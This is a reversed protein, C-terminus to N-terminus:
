GTYSDYIHQYIESCKIEYMEDSYSQPLKDLMDKIVIEVSARTQQRKKWDIVLKERKLTALLERAIQKVEKEEQNSLNINPKTLLDFIALEEETLKEAIARKEEENLEKAFELLESFFWEVNRSDSNYKEIMKQYKEFYNLRTKNFEIMQDLKQKITGKLKEAETHKYGTKFRQELQELDLQSLDILQRPHEPIVFEGAVISEDLLNEVEDIVESIDTEPLEQRIKIALKELLMQTKSFENAATDPLIAKYLRTINACLAFYLKKTEESVVVAEVAEDWVRAREFADQTTDLKNLDIGKQQCFDQAETIAERLQQVLATKPKVPTDGEEIGGGSASGYIALADQLNRFVGIYDVILGNVKEKFVRNARAITQMLTHNKMPKDLYITSCTPADFGTIWM